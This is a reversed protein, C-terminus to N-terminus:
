CKLTWGMMEGGRFLLKIAPPSSSITKWSDIRVLSRLGPGGLVLLPACRAQHHEQQVSPYAVTPYSLIIHIMHFPYMGHYWPWLCFTYHLKQWRSDRFIKPVEKSKRMHFWRLCMEEGHNLGYHVPESLHDSDFRGVLSVVKVLQLGLCHVWIMKIWRIIHLWIIYIYIYWSWMGCKAQM